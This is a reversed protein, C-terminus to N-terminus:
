PQSARPSRRVHLEVRATGAVVEDLGIEHRDYTVFPRNRDGDNRLQLTDLASRPLHRAVHGPFRLGRAPTEISVVLDTNGYREHVSRLLEDLDRPQVHQVDVAGGGQFFLEVDEGALREPIRVPV